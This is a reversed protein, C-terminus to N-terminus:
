EGPLGRVKSELKLYGLPIFIIMHMQIGAICFKFVALKRVKRACEASLLTVAVFTIVDAIQTITSIYSNSRITFEFGTSTLTCMYLIFWLSLGSFVNNIAHIKNSMGQYKELMEELRFQRNLKAKFQNQFRGSKVQYMFNSTLEWINYAALGFAGFGASIYLASSIRALIAFTAVAMNTVTEPVDFSANPNVNGTLFLVHKGRALYYEYSSTLTWIQMNFVPFTIALVIWVLQFSVM